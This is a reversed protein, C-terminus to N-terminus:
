ILLILGVLYFLFGHLYNFLILSLSLIYSILHTQRKLPQVILIGRSLSSNIPTKNSTTFLLVVEDRRILDLRM